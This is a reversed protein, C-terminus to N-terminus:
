RNSAHDQHHSNQRKPIHITKKLKVRQKTLHLYEWYDLSLDLEKKAEKQSKTKILPAPNDQTKVEPKKTNPIPLFYVAFATIALSATGILASGVKQLTPEEKQRYNRGLPEIKPSLEPLTQSDSLFQDVAEVLDFLQVTTLEVVIPNEQVEPASYYTLRHLHSNPIKELTIREGEKSDVQPQIIGSLLQQAYNSVTQALNELFVRGGQLKNTMGLFHCEANVVISLLYSSTLGQFTSNTDGFGELVLTCNPSRYERRINM